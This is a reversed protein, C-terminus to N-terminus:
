GSTTGRNSRYWDILASTSTDHNQTPAGSQLEALITKALSKGLEVGWQDFSNIGWVAGQVFVSHEYLAILAGLAHPSLEEAVITTSPRNGEFTRHTALKPSIGESLAEDTTRGFALAEGQAIVNAFLKDHHEGRPNQSRAFAIFDVPVLRTGQHLLQYFSHQGNTGPEGWVIAGTEYEVVDGDLRVRKGNSEMELQQLYAPFRGLYQDYPLVAHTTAGMFNGYWVRLLGLLAPVNAELETEKFHRDVDNFGQLMAGFHDPGIAVMLPLGIASCLSYRGGVWDWFEFVNEARIGFAGTREPNASVAAFHDAVAAEGLADTIWARATSANTLTEDTTFTKSAVIFLTSAPDLDRVAETLDTADVNSVFRVTIARDGYSQLAQTAMAPGLDSGGIGVNIVNRIPEGSHGRRESSRISAAFSAMQQQVAAVADMSAEGSTDRLAVHLVPRNETANIPEGAFMAQIRDPVATARALATLHSLTDAGLRNKSFDVRLGAVPLCLRRARQPDDAFLERLHVTEMAHAHEALAQWEKTEVPNSM